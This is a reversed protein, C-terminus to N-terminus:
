EQGAREHRFAPTAGTNIVAHGPIAVVYATLHSKKALLRLATTPERVSRRITTHGAAEEL